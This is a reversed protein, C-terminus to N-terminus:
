ASARGQAAAAAADRVAEVWARRGYLVFRERQGSRLTVRMGNPVIGLTRTPEVSAIEDLAWSEDHRQVNLKHSVFRLRRDTLFLKGGVGEVGKFHNTLGSRLLAEGSNPSGVDDQDAKAVRSAFFSTALAFLLGAFVGAVLATGPKGTQFWFLAGMPGGFVLAVVAIKKPSLARRADDIPTPTAVAPLAFLM